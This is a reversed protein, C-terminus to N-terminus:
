LHILLSFCIFNLFFISVYREVIVFKLQYTEGEYLSGAAADFEFLIENASNIAKLRVDTHGSRLFRDLEKKARNNQLLSIKNTLDLM